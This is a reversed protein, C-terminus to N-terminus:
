CKLNFILIMGFSSEQGVGELNIVVKLLHEIMNVHTLYLEKIDVNKLAVFKMFDFTSRSQGNDEDNAHM